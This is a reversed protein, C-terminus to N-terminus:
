LAAVSVTGAGLAKIYIVAGDVSRARLGNFGGRPPLRIYEGASFDSSDAILIDASTGNLVDVCYSLEYRVAYVEGSGVEFTTLRGGQIDTM